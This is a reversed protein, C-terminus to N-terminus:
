NVTCYLVTELMSKQHHGIYFKYKNNLAMIYLPIEWLDEPKHYICVILNPSDKKITEKAGKLASLECGEIDLKITGIRNKANVFYKDVSILQVGIGDGDQIFSGITGLNSVNLFANEYRSGLGLNVPQINRYESENTTESLQIFNSKDPEFAYILASGSTKRSFKLSTRGDFAGGDIIIDNKCFKLGPHEYIPYGSPKLYSPNLTLRTKIIAELASKSDNDSLLDIVASIKDVNNKYIDVNFHDKFRDNWFTLDYYHKIGLRDLQEAIEKAWESAICVLHDRIGLLDTPKIIELGDIKSGWKSKDNDCFCNVRYGFLRLHNKLSVGGSGAGFIILSKSGLANHIKVEKFSHIFDLLDM